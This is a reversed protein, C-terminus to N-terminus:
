VADSETGYRGDAFDIPQARGQCLEAKLVSLDYDVVSRGIGNVADTRIQFTMIGVMFIRLKVRRSTRSVLRANGSAAGAWSGAEECDM